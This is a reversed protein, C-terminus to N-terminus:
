YLDCVVNIKFVDVEKLTFLSDIMRGAKHYFTKMHESINISSTHSTELPLKVRSM